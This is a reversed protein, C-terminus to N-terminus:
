LSIKGHLAKYTAILEEHGLYDRWDGREPRGIGATIIRRVLQSPVDRADYVHRSGDNEQIFLYGFEAARLRPLESLADIKFHMREALHPHLRVRAPFINFHAHDVCCGGKSWDSAPGHEFVLPRVGYHKALTACIAEVLRELHEYLQKNLCAFSPIHKRALLLLGGEMFQGLPPVLVFQEDQYVVRSSLRDGMVKAFVSASEDWLEACFVCQDVPASLPNAVAADTSEELHLAFADAALADLARQRHLLMAGPDGTDPAFIDTLIMKPNTAPRSFDLRGQVQGSWHRLAGNFWGGIHCEMRARDSLGALLRKLGAVGLNRLV